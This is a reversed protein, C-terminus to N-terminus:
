AKGGPVAHGVVPDRGIGLDDGLADGRKGSQDTAFALPLVRQDHQRGDVGHQLAHRGAREDGCRAEPERGAVHHAHSAEDLAQLGRAIGACARHGIRPLIRDAAADEVQERWSAIGDPEIEEAVREFRDPGEIGLALPRERADFGQVEQRHALGREIRLDAFAEAGAIDLQEARRRGLVLKVLRDGCPALMLAHLMPQRQEMLPELGQEVIQRVRDDGEIREIVVRAGLAELLDGVM